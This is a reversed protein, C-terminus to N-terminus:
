FACDCVDRAAESCLQRGDRYLHVIVETDTHTYFSHGRAELEKRLELFNYIEGNFVVWVSSDENHIPQRGGSLDIISLRRMGLGVPGKVYVGEDDPGRHIITQCMRRVEAADIM